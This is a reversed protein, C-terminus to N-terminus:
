HLNSIGNKQELCDSYKFSLFMVLMLLVALCALAGDFPDSGASEMFAERKGTLSSQLSARWILKEEVNERWLRLLHSLYRPQTEAM